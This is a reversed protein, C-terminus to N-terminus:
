ALGTEIVESVDEESDRPSTRAPDGTVLQSHRHSGVVARSRPITPIASWVAASQSDAIPPRPPVASDPAAHQQQPAAGPAGGPRRAVPRCRNRSRQITRRTMLLQAMLLQAMLLRAPCAWVM